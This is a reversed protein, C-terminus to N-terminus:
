IKTELERIKAELKDIQQDISTIDQELKLIVPTLKSKGGANQKAYEARLDSLKNRSKELMTYLGTIQKYIDRSQKNRFDAYKTIQRQNNLVFFFEREAKADSSGINRAKEILAAYNEGDKWTDKISKLAARSKKVKEDDVRLNNRTDSYIYSYIVVKDDPQNRDTVLWGINNMEDIALMYENAPSNYPFGINEPRLYDESGLNYSSVFIDYGGMSEPRDSAFYITLGDSLVFPFTENYESNLASSLPAKETFKEGNRASSFLDLKTSDALDGFFIRDKKENTYVASPFSNSKNFFAAFPTLSGAERSINIANIFQNKDVTISDFVVIDDIGEMHRLGLDARESLIKGMESQDATLKKFALYTDIANQAEQFRYENNYLQALYRYSEQINRKSAVKLYKEAKSQEGTEFYCVGLWHNLSADNPRQKIYKEFIPKANAYEGKLYLQKGADLTQAMSYTMFGFGILLSYIRKM